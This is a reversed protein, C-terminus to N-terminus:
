STKLLVKKQTFDYAAQIIKVVDPWNSQPEFNHTNYEKVTIILTNGQMAATSVFGGTANTINTNLAGAGELKYGKPITLVIKDSISQACSFYIDCNRQIQKDTLQRKAGLLKGADVIYNQGVKHLVNKIKFKDNFIISTSDTERGDCLLNFSNYSDIDFYNGNFEKMEALRDAATRGVTPESNKKDKNEPGKGLLRAVYDNDTAGKYRNIEQELLQKDLIIGPYYNEKGMGSIVANRDISAGGLMDPNISVNTTFATSNDDPSSVPLTVKDMIIKTSDTNPTIMYASIGEMAPRSEGPDRYADFSYLYLDPEGKIHVVWRLESPYIVNDVTGLNRPITFLLDYNIKMKRCVLCITQAFVDSRLEDKREINNHVNHSFGCYNDNRFDGILMFYRFYSYAYKMYKVPDTINKHFQNMFKIIQEAYGHEDNDNSLAIQNTVDKLLWYPVNSLPESEKGLFYPVNEVEKAPCYSVQFKITPECRYKDEWLEENMKNRNNDYLVYSLPKSGSGRVYSNALASTDSTLKLGPAGNYSAINIYYDKEVNLIIKQAVIPYNQTLTFVIPPFPTVTIENKVTSSSFKYYFDIIDGPELGPIAIKKYANSLLFNESGLLSYSAGVPKYQDVPVADNINVKTKEGNKKIITFGVDDTPFFEFQSFEEIASKDLLKIRYRETEDFCGLALRSYYSYTIKRALIVAAQNNWKDPFSNNKFITDDDGFIAQNSAEQRTQRRLAAAAAQRKRQALMSDNLAHAAKDIREKRTQAGTFHSAVLTIFLTLIYTIINKKM